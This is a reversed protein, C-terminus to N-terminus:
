TRSISFLLGRAVTSGRPTAGPAEIWQPASRRLPSWSLSGRVALLAISAVLVLVCVAGFGLSQDGDGAPEPVFTQAAAHEVAAAAGLSGVADAVDTAAVAGPADATAADASSSAAGVTPVAPASDAGHIHPGLVSIALFAVFAVLFLVGRASVPAVGPADVRMTVEEGYM